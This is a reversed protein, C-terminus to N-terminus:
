IEIVENIELTDTIKSQVLFSVEYKGSGIHNIKFTNVDTIRDDQLLAEHIRNQLEPIVFDKRMGYLPDIDTGYDWNYIPYRYRQTALILYISQKLAEVGDITGIICKNKLDIGYTMSPCIVVKTDVIKERPISIVPLM